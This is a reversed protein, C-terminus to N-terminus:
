MTVAVLDNVTSPLSRAEARHLFWVLVLLSFRINGTANELRQGYESGKQTGDVCEVTVPLQQQVVCPKLIVPFSM